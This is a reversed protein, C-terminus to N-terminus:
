QDYEEFRFADIFPLLWTDSKAHFLASNVEIEIGIYNAEPYSKRLETVHGNAIGRYPANNRIRLSLRDELRTRIRHAFSKERERKPDYLIGIDVSRRVNRFVPTFTHCSIHVVCLGSDIKDTIWSLVRRRFPWYLQLLIDEKEERSLGSTVSSFLGAHPVSRNLDVLLRTWKGSFLPWGYTRSLKNAYTSANEDFWQHDEVHPVQSFLSSYKKPVAKSAHECTLLFAFGRM